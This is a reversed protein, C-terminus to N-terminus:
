EFGIVTPEEMMSNFFIATPPNLLNGNRDFENIREYKKLVYPLGHSFIIDPRDTIQFHLHPMGSNGSNGLLGIPDGENVIDNIDVFFSNPACHGYGAYHGGGIDLIIHNGSVESLSNIVVNQANGNNEPLNDQLRVVVGNAVAYLTDKYNYYSENILPDGNLIANLGDDFQANDFAYRCMTWIESNMFFLANFHYEMTSQSVFLWNRGKVPSSIAIPTENIRPSFLAGEMYVVKNLFTNYFEFRHSINTPKPQNFPIPLQINLYYHFLKDWIFFPMHPWLPLPDKYILLTDTKYITMLEEKSDGDLVVIKQLFLGEKEYEWMKLTYGIRLYKETQYPVDNMIVEFKEFQNSTVIGENNKCSAFIITILIFLTLLAKTRM